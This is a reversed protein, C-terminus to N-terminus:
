VVDAVKWPPKVADHLLVTCYKRGTGDEIPHTYFAMPCEDCLGMEDAFRYSLMEEVHAPLIGPLLNGHFVFPDGDLKGRKRKQLWVWYLM